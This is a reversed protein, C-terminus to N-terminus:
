AYKKDLEKLLEKTMKEEDESTLNRSLVKEALLLATKGIEEKAAKTADTKALEADARAQLAISEAHGKAAGVLEAGRREADVKAQSILVEGAQRAKELERSRADNIRQMEREAKETLELGKAIKKKREEIFTLIKPFVFKGLLAFIILFNVIQAFLLKGNIGLNSLLEGMEYIKINVRM